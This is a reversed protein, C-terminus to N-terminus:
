VHVEVPAHIQCIQKHELIMEFSIIGKFTTFLHFTCCSKSILNELHVCFVVQFKQLHESCYLFLFLLLLM